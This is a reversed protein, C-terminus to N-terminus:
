AEPEGRLGTWADRLFRILDTAAFCEEGLAEVGVDGAMGHLYVALCLREEFGGLHPQGVLAAIIGALV